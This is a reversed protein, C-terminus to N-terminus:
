EPRSGEQDDDDSHDDQLANPFTLEGQPPAYDAPSPPLEVHEQYAGVNVYEGPENPARRIHAHM